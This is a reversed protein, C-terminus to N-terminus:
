RQYYEVNSKTNGPLPTVVLPTASFAISPPGITCNDGLAAIEFDVARTSQVWRLVVRSVSTFATGPNPTFTNYPLVIKPCAVEGSGPPNACRQGSVGFDFCRTYPGGSCGAGTYVDMCMTFNDDSFIPDIYFQTGAYDGTYLNVPGFCSDNDSNGTYYIWGSGEGSPPISWGYVGPNAGTVYAQAFAALNSADQSIFRTGGIIVNPVLEGDSAYGYPPTVTITQTGQNYEDLVVTNGASPMMVLFLAAFSAYLVLAFGLRFSGRIM